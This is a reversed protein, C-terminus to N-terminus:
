SQPWFSDELVAAAPLDAAIISNKVVAGAGIKVKSWIISNAVKAGASVKAGAGMIVFGELRGQCDAKPAILKQGQALRENLAFYEALTGMDLWFVDAFCGRIADHKNLQPLLAEIIDSPGEPLLTFIEPSLVMMGGYALRRQEGPVKQPDRIALIDQEDPANSLPAVAVNAKAPFDILALTALPEKRQKHALILKELPFDTYIDGNILLFPESGLLNQAGKIGGGTGLIEKEVSVTLQHEAAFACIQGALHHANLVIKKFGLARLKKVWLGLISDHLIPFLGKPRIKSLPALRTGFGAALIFATEIKPENEM